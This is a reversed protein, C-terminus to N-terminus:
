NNVAKKITLYKIIFLNNIKILLLQYGLFWEKQLYTFKWFRNIFRNKTNM